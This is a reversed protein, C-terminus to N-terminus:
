RRDSSPKGLAVCITPVLTTGSVAKLLKAACYVLTGTMPRGKIRALQRFIDIQDRMGLRKPRLRIPEHSATRLIRVLERETGGRMGCRLLTHWSEDRRVRKSLWRAAPLALADPLYNILPLGTTHVDIPSYRHPTQNVFLIGGPRITEWISPLLSTREGPLLHEYVGSLTVHDFDRMGDPLRDGSPSRVLRVGNVHYHEARLKAVALLREDIDVGVIESARPFMRALIMTSAGSGCGFDLIRAGDFAEESAFSLLGYKLDASVGPGEDRRIEECLWTPGKADLIADILGVPYSTELAERGSIRENGPMKVNVRNRGSAARDVIVVGDPHRLVVTM